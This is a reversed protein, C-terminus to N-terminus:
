LHYSSSEQIVWKSPLTYLVKCKNKLHPQGAMGFFSNLYAVNWLSPASRTQMAGGVGITVPLGDSFGKYPNHCTACSVTGDKSLIPDFFLLRGLDIQQPTFGDRPKPLASKLGGVGANQLSSYQQYLNRSICTNEETLQFGPPCNCSLPSETEAKSNLYFFLISVLALLLLLAFSKNKFM